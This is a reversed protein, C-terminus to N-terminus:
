GGLTVDVCRVDVCRDEAWPAKDTGTADLTGWSITSLKFENTSEAVIIQRVNDARRRALEMNCDRPGHPDAHGILTMQRGELPGLAFCEALTRLIKKHQARVYASDFAFYADNDALGCAKRVDHSICINGHTADDDLKSSVVSIARTNSAQAMPAAVKPGIGGCAAVLSTLAIMASSHQIVMAAPRVYAVRTGALHPYAAQDRSLFQM